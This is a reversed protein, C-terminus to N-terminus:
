TPTVQRLTVTFTGDRNERIARKLLEPRTGAVAALSSLFFCDGLNGQGVDSASVGRVFVDGPAAEWHFPAFPRGLMDKGRPLRPHSPVAASQGPPAGPAFSPSCVFSALLVKSWFRARANM